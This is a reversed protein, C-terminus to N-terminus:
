SISNLTMFSRALEKSVLYSILLAILVLLLSWVSNISYYINQPIDTSLLFAELLVFVAIAGALHLYTKRIFAAREEPLVEAATYCITKKYRNNRKRPKLRNKIYTAPANKV